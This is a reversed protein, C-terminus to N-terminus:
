ALWDGSIIEVDLLGGGSIIARVQIDGIRVIIFTCKIGGIAM